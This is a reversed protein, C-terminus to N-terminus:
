IMAVDVYIHGDKTYVRKVRFSQNRALLREHQAEGESVNKDYASLDVGRTHKSTAIKLVVPKTSGTFDSWQAAVSEESTTSMFGKETITKGQARSIIDNIAKVKSRAYEGKGFTDQGYILVERMDSFDYDDMAGFIATADISRYLTSDKIEGNTANDLDKLYQKEADTLEGFDGRGRLYQNIWMGEGSVYYETADNAKGATQTSGVRKGVSTQGRGGM